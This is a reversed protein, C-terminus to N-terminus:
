TAGPKGSDDSVQHILSALRAGREISPDFRFIFDPVRRLDLRHVLEKQLFRSAHQLAILVGEREAEPGLHSVFVNAHHLDPSVEVATISTLGSGMRPDKVERQILASLEERLLENVRETRRTM